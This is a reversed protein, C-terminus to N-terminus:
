LGVLSVDGAARLRDASSARAEEEENAFAQPQDRGDGAAVVTEEAARVNHAILANAAQL